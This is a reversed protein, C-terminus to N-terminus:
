TYRIFNFFTDSTQSTSPGDLCSLHDKSKSGKALPSVFISPANEDEDSALEDWVDGAEALEQM